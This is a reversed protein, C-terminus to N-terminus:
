LIVLFNQNENKEIEEICFIEFDNKSFFKLNNIDILRAMEIFNQCNDNKEYFLFLNQAIASNLFSLKGIDDCSSIISLKQIQKFKDQIMQNILNSLQRFSSYHKIPSINNTYIPFKYDNIKEFLNGDGFLVKRKRTVQMMIDTSNSEEDNDINNNNNNNFNMNNKLEQDLNTEIILSSIKQSNWFRKLKQIQKQRREKTFFDNQILLIVLTQESLSTSQLFQMKQCFNVIEHKTFNPSILSNLFLNFSMLQVLIPKNILNFLKNHFIETIAISTVFKNQSINFMQLSNRDLHFELVIELNSNLKIDFEYKNLLLENGNFPLIKNTINHRQAWWNPTKEETKNIKMQFFQWSSHLLKNKKKIQSHYPLHQYDLDFHTPKQYCIVNDLAKRTPRAKQNDKSNEILMQFSSKNQEKRIRKRKEFKTPQKTRKKRKQTLYQEMTPVAKVCLTKKRHLYGNLTKLVQDRTPKGFVSFYGFPSNMKKRVKRIPTKLKLIKFVKYIEQTNTKPPLNSIRIRYEPLKKYEKKKAKNKSGRKKKQKPKHKRKRKRKRNINQKETPLKNQSKSRHDKTKTQEESTLIGGM